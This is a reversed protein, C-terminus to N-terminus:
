RLAAVQPGAVQPLARGDATPMAVGTLAAVTPAIDVPSVAMDYRGAAIGGGLFVLPVHQNYDQGTNHHIAEGSNRTMYTWGRAVSLLFEGRRTHAGSLAAMRVLADRSDRAITPTYLLREVGPIEEVVRQVARVAAPDAAVRSATPPRLVYGGWVSSEVHSAGEPLPGYRSLLTEEIRDRVDENVVRGTRSTISPISTVGHDATLVLVYGGRGVRADLSEILDGLADDMRAVVDEYERSDPGFGHAVRDTGTFSIGLFDIGQGRGLGFAETLALAFRGLYANVFGSRQWQTAYQGDAGRVGRLTHPFLAGWGAPPREGLGADRNRYTGEPDRLTWAAGLDRQYSNADIFAKVAPVASQAYATSTVFGDVGDDWWTVADGAHGALGISGRAKLSVTVVRSGPREERLRDALTPLGLNKASNASTAEAGYSIPKASEDHTCEVQRGLARDYWDDVVLGHRYPLTGTSITFHGACTDTTLYPYRANRFVAGESLLTRFGRRWHSAYTNLFEARFGDLVVMVVLRPQDAARM